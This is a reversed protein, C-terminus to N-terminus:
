TKMFIYFRFIAQTYIKSRSGDFKLTFFITSSVPCGFFSNQTTEGEAAAVSEGKRGGQELGWQAPQKGGAGAEGWLGAM